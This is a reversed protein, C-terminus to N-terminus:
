TIFLHPNPFPFILSSVLYFLSFFHIPYLSLFCYCTHVCYFLCLSLFFLWYKKKPSFLISEEGGSVQRKYNIKHKSCGSKYKFDLCTLDSLATQISLGTRNRGVSVWDEGCNSAEECWLHEALTPRTHCIEKYCSNKWCDKQGESLMCLLKHQSPLSHYQSQDM